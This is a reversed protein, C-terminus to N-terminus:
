SGSACGPMVRREIEALIRDAYLPGEVEWDIPLQGMHPVPALVYFSSDGAPALSPDTVTPHHLYLSFDAPLV